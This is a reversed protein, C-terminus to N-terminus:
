LLTVISKLICGQLLFLLYFTRVHKFKSFYNDMDLVSSRAPSDKTSLTAKIFQYTVKELM